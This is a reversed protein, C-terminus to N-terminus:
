SNAPIMCAQELREAIRQKRLFRVPDPDPKAAVGEIQQLYNIPLNLYRAGALVFRKYWDYPFLTTDIYSRQATYAYPTHATGKLSFQMLKEEYGQGLGEAEDLNEKEASDFEYLAGYMMQDAGQANYFLCKGSGDTSRKHFALTKGPMEVVDLFRASPVRAILRHPHLNSGFALYQLRPM